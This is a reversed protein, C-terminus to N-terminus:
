QASMALAVDIVGNELRRRDDNRLADIVFSVRYMAGIFIQRSVVRADGRVPEGNLELVFGCAAGVALPGDVLAAFGAVSVDMTILEHVRDGDVVRLKAAHAVRFTQRPLQGARVTLGQARLIARAFDNRLTEYLARDSRSQLQEVKQREHLERFRALTDELTSTMSLRRQM